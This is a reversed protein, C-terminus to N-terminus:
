NVEWIVGPVERSSEGEIFYRPRRRGRAELEDLMGGQGNTNAEKVSERLHAVGQRGGSWCVQVKDKYSGNAGSEGCAGVPVAMALESKWLSKWLGDSGM